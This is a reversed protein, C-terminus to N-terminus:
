LGRKLESQWARISAAAARQVELAPHPVPQGKADAIVLGERLIRATADREIAVQACYADLGPIDKYGQALLEARVAEVAAPREYRDSM